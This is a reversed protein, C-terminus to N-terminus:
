ASALLASVLQAPLRTVRKAGSPDISTVMEIGDAQFTVAQQKPPIDKRGM